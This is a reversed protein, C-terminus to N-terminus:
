QTELLLFDKHWSMARHIHGPFFALLSKLDKPLNPDNLMTLWSILSVFNVFYSGTCLVCLVQFIRSCGSPARFTLKLSHCQPRRVDVDLMSTRKMESACVKHPHRLVDFSVCSECFWSIWASFILSPSSTLYTLHLSSINFSKTM